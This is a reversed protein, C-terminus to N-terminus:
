RPPSELARTRRMDAYIVAADYGTHGGAAPQGERVADRPVGAADLMGHLVDRMVVAEGSAVHYVGGAEGRVAIARLQALAADASVYDRRSDLNGVEITATEGRRYCEILREVRGVFLRESLGPALLNFMRAVVVDSGLAHVCHLAIQTQFAKTLGYVSVPRLLRDERIPNDEAQVPGYEAASGLLVVRTELEQRRIAKLLHLAAQANVRYDTEYDNAFSGALHFILRPRVRALLESVAAADTVDCDDRGTLVVDEAAEVRLAAGLVRGFGGHAGTVLTTM